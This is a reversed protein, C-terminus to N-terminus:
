THTHKKRQKESRTCLSTRPQQELKSLFNWYVKESREKEKGVFMKASVCEWVKLSKAEGQRISLLLIM